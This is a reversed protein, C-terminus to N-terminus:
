DEIRFVKHSSTEGELLIVASKAVSFYEALIEIVERNAKGKEAPAHVKVKLVDTVQSIGSIKAKPIVKVRIIKPM